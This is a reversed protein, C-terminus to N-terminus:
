NYDYQSILSGNFSNSVKTRLNRNPDYSYTTSQQNNTTLQALLDSNALYSYSMTGSKGAATWGVNNFRGTAVDYGYTITYDDGLTFGGARGLSDYSRTINDADEIHEAKLQLNSNYTFTRTGVADAVTSQRGLRDYTFSVDTTGVPYDISTLEGTKDNYIYKTEGGRAWTRTALRGGTGYTYSVAKNAADIKSTLLGTAPHYVWTTTDGAGGGPFTEGSWGQGDRYTKMTSLKGYADYEYSVPYAADGWTAKVQGLTNYSYRTYKGDANIDAIKRGTTADYQYTTANNAADTVSAVRGKADYQTSVKGTRPDTASIRRGLADYNFSTEVGTKSTVKTVVGAVSVQQEVTADPYTTTRQETKTSRDIKAISITRNNNIDIAITESVLGGTGLGTLRSLQTAVTAPIGNNDAYVIQETKQWLGSTDSLYSSDTSNMRDTSAPELVGNGNVDLGTRIQNGLEDYEYLTDAMGLTSTKFLRGKADYYNQAIETGTFGPKEASITRGLIDTTSKEWVPSNESGTSVKTWQSGDANVGYAYYRPIVGTGKVSKVRGDAFRETIETVGGPRTVTTVLGNTAYSYSTTLNQSDTSSLLRGAGDYTSSTSQTIGGAKVTQSLRRGVADYTYSTIIDNDLPGKTIQSLVRNM